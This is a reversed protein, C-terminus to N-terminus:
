DVAGASQLYRVVDAHGGRRAQNLPTRWEGQIRGGIWSNESWVRAHVNAGRSVLLRVVALQGQASASILANEDRPVVQDVVAGRDLLFRVIDIHGHSAAAILPSGDGPVGMNIDAGRDILLRVIDMYGKGAAEILPSGDGDVGQDVDARRDLLLRVIETHGGEAAMILPSGDGPVSLDVDAGADILAQVVRRHGHKAAVILPSGDGESTINPDAGRQILFEAMQTDGRQAAALLPTGDGRVVSNVDVGAQLLASVEDIEGHQAAEVLSRALARAYVANTRAEFRDDRRERADRQEGADNGDAEAADAADDAVDDAVDEATSALETAAAVFERGATRLDDAVDLDRVAEVRVPAVALLFIAALTCAAAAAATGVRGRLQTRDLVAKVRVSLDSRRAMSLVPQADRASMREALTVLQEAYDFHEMRNVVADDCARECELCFRRWVMWVLPHFWYAACIVRATLQTIWDARRVHELEHVFTRRLDADTWSRADEPLLIAPNRWGCTVPASVDEHLMVTTTPPMGAQKAIEDALAQGTLWPIGSRRVAQMKWLAHTLLVLMLATGAFWIVRVADLLAIDAPLWARRVVRDPTAAPFALEIAASTAAAMTTAAPAPLPSAARAASPVQIAVTMDPLVAGAIPLAMLVALTAALVLHRVSAAARRAVTAALLGAALAITAKLVLSLEPTM